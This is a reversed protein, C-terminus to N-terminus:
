QDAPKFYKKYIDDGDEFDSLKPKSNGKPAKKSLEDVTVQSISEVGNWKKTVLVKYVEPTTTKIDEIVMQESTKQLERVKEATESPLKFMEPRAMKATEQIQKLDAQTSLLVKMDAQIATASEKGSSELIAKQGTKVFVSEAAQASTTIPTVEVEGRLVHVQTNQSLPNYVMYLDTGRVGSTVSATRIRVGSLPGKKDIMGRLKGYLLESSVEKSAGKELAKPVIFATSNGLIFVDGNDYIIKVKGDNGSRLIDGPHVKVGPQVRRSVYKKGDFIVFSKETTQPEINLASFIEVLGSFSVVMAEKIEVASAQVTIGIILTFLVRIISM